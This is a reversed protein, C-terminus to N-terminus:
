GNDGVRARSEASAERWADTEVYGLDLMSNLIGDRATKWESPSQARAPDAALAELAACEGISLAGARSQFYTRAADDAGVTASGYLRVNILWEAM